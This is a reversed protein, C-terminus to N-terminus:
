RLDVSGLSPFSFFKAPTFRHRVAMQELNEFQEDTPDGVVYSGVHGEAALLVTEALCTFTVEEDRNDSTFLGMDFPCSLGPIRALCKVVRIDPRALLVSQDVNEPQADDLVVTNPGFDEAKLISGVANTVCVVIAAEKIDQKNATYKHLIPNWGPIQPIKDLQLAVDVALVKRSPARKFMCRLAARGTSGAAGIVAVVGDAGIEAEIDDVMQAITLATFGHGTTISVKPKAQKLLRGHRTLSPILAGLGVMKTQRYQAYDLIQVVADRAEPLRDLMEEPGHPITVLEGRLLRDGVPVEISSLVVSATPPFIGAFSARLGRLIPFLPRWDEIAMRPHVVFLFDLPGEYKPRLFDITTVYIQRKWGSAFVMPQPHDVFSTDSTYTRNLLTTKAQDIEWTKSHLVQTDFTNALTTAVLAVFNHQSMVLNDDTKPPQKLALTIYTLANDETLQGGAEHGPLEATLPHAIIVEHGDWSTVMCTVFVDQHFEFPSGVLPRIAEALLHLDIKCALHLFDMLYYKSEGLQDKKMETESTWTVIWNIRGWSELRRPLRFTSRAPCWTAFCCNINNKWKDNIVNVPLFVNFDANDYDSYYNAGLFM